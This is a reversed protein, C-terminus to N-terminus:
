VCVFSICSKKKRQQHVELEKMRPFIAGELFYRAFYRYKEMSEPHEIEMVPLEWAHPGFTPSVFCKIQDGKPDYKPVPTELPKGFNTLHAGLKPLWLPHIATIGKMYIRKTSVLERYVCYEPQVGFLYSTPHIFVKESTKLTV